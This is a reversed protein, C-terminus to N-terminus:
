AESTGPPDDGAHGTAEEESVAERILTLLSEKLGAPGGVQVIIRETWPANEYSKACFLFFDIVERLTDEPHSTTMIFYDKPLKGDIEDMVLIMDMTEEWLECDAGSSVSYRCGSDVLLQCIADQRDEAVNPEEVHILACFSDAFPKVFDAADEIRQYWVVLGSDFEHRTPPSATM